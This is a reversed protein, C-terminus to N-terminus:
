IRRVSFQLPPPSAPPPGAPTFALVPMDNLVVIPAAPQLAVPDLVFKVTATIRSETAPEQGCSNKDEQHSQGEGEPLNTSEHCAAKPRPDFQGGFCWIRCQSHIAVVVILISCLSNM